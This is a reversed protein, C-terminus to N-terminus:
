QTELLEKGRFEKDFKRLRNNEDTQFEHEASRVGPMKSKVARAALAAVEPTPLVTPRILVILENRAESRSSSRFLVGLLPLDKLVPVGSASQNKTTEILGGLMITEHDRVSVQASASKSSTIPVDGVNPMNVTGSVNDIQQSIQMVVLGDVNILPTVDLTVGIQMQQISSYGGYAGGGYYSGTPYPRSEGVFINAEMGHSTQIVPRQLVKARSDSAVATLTVDLDQGLHALYSFGGPLNGAANTAAGSLFSSQSLMNGNNVGGIGNFYHGLGHGKAEQYSVGLNRSDDLSVEIIVAEILVQALVIDLQEIIHKITKMDEKSAYILLSNTREDSIIKTQGIVQIEGTATAGARSMIGRLRDTFSAGAGQAGPATAGLPNVGAATSGPYGMGMGTGTRGLGGGMRSGMGGGRGGRGGAGLGGAGAAGGGLTTAGGGSSLSNLAGAIDSAMAYKIPIVESVFESPIVVDIKKVLELMRKVNESFDRLVLVQSTDIPLIGNPVASAFPQLAAVIASPLVNTLQVVYTVYPGLEPLGEGPEKAIPQGQGGANATPVAKVFKEGVNLMAIGNMGLVTDLIQVAEKRTFLAKPNPVLTIQPAPLTSPRLVTRGSYEMYLDLVQTLDAAQLRMMGLLEESPPNTSGAALTVAATQAPPATPTAGPAPPAAPGATGPPGIAPQPARGLPPPAGLGAGPAPPAAAGPAANTAAAPANTRALSGARMAARSLPDRTPGPGLTNTVPGAPAAPPTPTQAWLGLGSLLFTFLITKVTM